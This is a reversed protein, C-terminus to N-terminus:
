TGPPTNYNSPWCLAREGSRRRTRRCARSAAPHCRRTWRGAYRTRLGRIESPTSPWHVGTCAPMWEAYRDASVDRLWRPTSAGFATSQRRAATPRWYGRRRFTALRATAVTTTTAPCCDAAPRSRDPCRPPRSPRWHHSRHHPSLM